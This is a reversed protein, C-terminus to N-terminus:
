PADDDPDRVYGKGKDTLYVMGDRVDFFGGTDDEAESGPYREGQRNRGHAMVHLMYEDGSWAMVPAGGDITDILNLNSEHDEM